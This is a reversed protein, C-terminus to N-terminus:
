RDAPAATDQADIVRAATEYDFGARGLIALDKQRHDARDGTRFPGLRRRRALVLAAEYDAHKTASGALTAAITDPDIGKAALRGAIARSSGGRRRLSAHRSEAYLADNLVGKQVYAAILSEIEAFLAASDDGYHRASLTVKRKLVRRLNAASTSFRALYYVAAEALVTPTM